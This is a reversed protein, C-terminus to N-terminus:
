PALVMVIKVRSDAQSREIYGIGGPTFVVHAIVEAASSVQAPPTTKGSFHLRAWYANIESLGKDVLRRYFLARSETSATQDVPIAAIGSPLKRYRGLFINIVEDRSLQDIGAKADVVVVLEARAAGAVLGFLITLLILRLARM